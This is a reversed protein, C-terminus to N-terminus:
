VASSYREGECGADEGVRNAQHIACSQTFAPHLHVDVSVPASNAADANTDRISSHHAPLQSEITPREEEKPKDPTYIWQETSQFIIFTRDISNKSTSKACM